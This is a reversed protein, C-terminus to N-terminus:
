LKKTSAGEFLEYKNKGTFLIVAKKLDKSDKMLISSGYDHLQKQADLRHKEISKENEQFIQTRFDM